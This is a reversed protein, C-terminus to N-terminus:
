PFTYSTNLRRHRNSPKLLPKQKHRAAYPPQLHVHCVSIKKQATENVPHPINVFIYRERKVLFVIISHYLWQKGDTHSPTWVSDPICVRWCSSARHCGLYSVCKISYLRINGILLLLRLHDCLCLKGNPLPCTCQTQQLPTTLNQHVQKGKMQYQWVLDLRQIDM